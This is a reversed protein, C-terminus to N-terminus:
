AFDIASSVKIQGNPLALVLYFAAINASENITIAIQGSANSVLSFAKKSGSEDIILGTSATVAGNPATNILDLGDSNDSFWAKVRRSARLNIGLIDKLQITVGIANGAEAAVTITTTSADPAQEDLNSSVIQWRGMTLNLDRRVAPDDVNVRTGGAAVTAISTKNIRLPTASIRGIQLIAM